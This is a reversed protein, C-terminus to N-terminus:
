SIPKAKKIEYRKFWYHGTGYGSRRTFWKIQYPNEVTNNVQLIIGMEGKHSWNAAIKEGAASLVVLDGVKM